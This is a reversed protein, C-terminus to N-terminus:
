VNKAGNQKDKAHKVILNIKKVIEKWKELHTDMKADNKKEKILKNFYKIADSSEFHSILRICSVLKGSPHKSYVTIQKSRFLCHSNFNNILNLASRKDLASKIDFTNLEM